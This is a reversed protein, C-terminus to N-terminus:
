RPAQRVLLVHLRRPGHAGYVITQEIDATKSPGTILNVARPMADLAALGAWFDELSAVLEAELLVAINVEPLFNLTVPSAAASVLALTGTEAIGASARTVSVRDARRAAGRRCDFGHWDLGAIEAHPALVAQLEQGAGLLYEAAADPAQALTDVRECTGHVAILMATFREALAPAAADAGAAPAAFRPAPLRIKARAASVEAAACRRRSSLAALIDHRASTMNIGTLPAAAM